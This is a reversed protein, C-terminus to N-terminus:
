MRCSLDIESRLENSEVYEETLGPAAIWAGNETTTLLDECGGGVKVSIEVTVESHRPLDGLRVYYSHESDASKRLKAQKHKVKAGRTLAIRSTREAPRLWGTGYSFWVYATVDHLVGDSTNGYTIRLDVSANRNIRIATTCGEGPLVATITAPSGALATSTNDCAYTEATAELMPRSAEAENLASGAFNGTILGLAVAAMPTAWRRWWTQSWAAKSAKTLAPSSHWREDWQLWALVMALSGAAFGVVWWAGIAEDSVRMSFSTLAAGALVLLVWFLPWRDPHTPRSTVHPLNKPKAAGPPPTPAAAAAIKAYDFTPKSSTLTPSRSPPAPAQKPQIPRTTSGPSRLSTESTRVYRIANDRFYGLSEDTWLRQWMRALALADARSAHSDLAKWQNLVRWHWDYVVAKLDDPLPSRDPLLGHNGRLTKETLLAFQYLDTQQTMPKGFLDAPLMHETYPQNALPEDCFSFSDCDLMFVAESAIAPSTILTNRPKLDGVVLGGEHVQLVLELLGGLVALQQGETYEGNILMSLHRPEDGEFYRQPARAMLFGCCAGQAEVIALPVALAGGAPSTSAWGSLRTIHRRPVQGPTFYEKFLYPRQQWKVVHISAQGGAFANEDEFQLSSRAVRQM